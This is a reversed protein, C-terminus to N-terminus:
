GAQHVPVAHVPRGRCAKLCTGRSRDMDRFGGTSIQRRVRDELEWVRNGAGGGMQKMKEKKRGGSPPANCRFHDIMIRGDRGFWLLLGCIVIEVLELHSESDEGNDWVSACLDGIRGLWRESETVAQGDMSPTEAMRGVGSGM